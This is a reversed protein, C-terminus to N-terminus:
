KLKNGCNVCFETEKANQKGCKSCKNVSEVAEGCASCFKEGQKLVRGCKPCLDVNGKGTARNGDKVSGDTNLSIGKPLTNEIIDKTYNNYTKIIQKM